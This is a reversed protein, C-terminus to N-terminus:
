GSRSPFGARSPFPQPYLYTTATASAIRASRQCRSDVGVLANAFSTGKNRVSLFRNLGSYWGERLARGALVGLIVGSGAPQLRVVRDDLTTTIKCRSDWRPLCLIHKSSAECSCM